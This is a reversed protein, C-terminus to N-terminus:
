RGTLMGSHSAKDSGEGEHARVVELIDVERVGQERRRLRATRTSLWWALVAAGSPADGALWRTLGERGIGDTM